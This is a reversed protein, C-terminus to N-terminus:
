FLRKIHKALWLPVRYPAYRVPIDIWTGKKVIAKLHSFVEFSNKGHYAGIGSKGVGGFPLDKNAYQIVTDNIAGGGFSYTQLIKKRFTRSNTFIYAALPKDTGMIFHNLDDETEYSIIPLIPGFIEEQMLQSNRTPEDVLTPALFNDTSNHTGGFLIKEGKLMGLLRKHHAANVVRALDPSLESEKGYANTISKKLAEILASKVKKHVLVYDPAVCTQGANLFKGWAIRKSALKLNATEDVICPSKGGLELTVPTLHKSAQEYIIQGVRTSGTFFIYDWRQALLAQSIEVGGQIVHAHQPPFVSSIIEAIIKSTNTTVESPKLVVTNGAAIAGILPTLALQFPYNWPAIVLVAGYPERYIWDSSPFNIWVPSVKEPKAWHRLKRITLKLEALVIQTETGLTEFRPKKFDKYLAECIADEKAIIAKYLALLTKKRFAIEKTKHTSFFLRQEQLIKPITDQM